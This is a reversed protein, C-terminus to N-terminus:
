LIMFMALDTVPNVQVLTLQHILLEFFKQM